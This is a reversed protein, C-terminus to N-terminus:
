ISVIIIQVKVPKTIRQVPAHFCVSYKTLIDAVEIFSNLINDMNEGPLGFILDCHFHIRDQVLLKKITDFLKQNNQKRQISEQVRVDTTQIGIEFQFMGPPVSELFKLIDPTLIDGVVEFHFECDGFQSLWEMLAKM